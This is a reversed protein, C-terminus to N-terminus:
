FKTEGVHPVYWVCLTVHHGTGAQDSESQTIHKLEGHVSELWENIQDEFHSEIVTAGSGIIHTFVKVRILM